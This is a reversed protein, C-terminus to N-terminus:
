RLEGSVETSASPAISPTELSPSVSQRKPASPEVRPLPLQLPANAGPKVEAPASELGNTNLILPMGTATTGPGMVVLKSNPSQALARATVVYAEISKWRLYPESLGQNVVEQFNRIGLAEVMKREVEKQEAAVRFNYEDVLARATNKRIYAEQVEPPFRIEKILIAEMIIWSVGRDAVFTEGETPPKNPSLENIAQFQTLATKISSFVLQQWVTREGSHLEESRVLSVKDRLVSEIVRVVVKNAYEPGITKHVLGASDPVLSFVWAIDLEIKLGDSTLAAVLKESSQARTDYIYLQDWPFILRTGERYVKDVVTGGAFRKWLVGVSGAPISYVSLPLFLAVALLATLGLVWLDRSWARLQNLLFGPYKVATRLLRQRFSLLAQDPM